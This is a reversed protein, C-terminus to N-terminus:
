DRHTFGSFLSGSQLTSESFERLLDYVVLFALGGAQERQLIATGAYKGSKAIVPESGLFVPRM